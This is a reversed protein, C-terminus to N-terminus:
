PSRLAQVGPPQNTRQLGRKVPDAPWLRTTGDQGASLVQANNPTFRASFVPSQHSALTMLLQGTRADWVRARQDWSATVLQSGDGSADITYIMSDHALWEAILKGSAVEFIRVRGADTGTAIREGDKIFSANTVAEGGHDLAVHTDPDLSSWIRATGDRSTSCVWPGRPHTVITYISDAHESFRASEVGTAVGYM